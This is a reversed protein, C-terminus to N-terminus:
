GFTNSAERLKKADSHTLYVDDAASPSTNFAENLRKVNQVDTYTLDFDGSSFDIDEISPLETNLGETLRRLSAIDPYTLQLAEAPGFDGTLKAAEYAEVLMWERLVYKPNQADMRAKITAARAASWGEDGAALARWESLFAIWEHRLASKADVASEDYFARRMPEFLASGIADDADDDETTNEFEALNVTM